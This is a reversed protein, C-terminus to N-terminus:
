KSVNAVIKESQNIEIQRQHSILIFTNTLISKNVMVYCVVIVVVTFEHLTLYAYTLRLKFVIDDAVVVNVVM